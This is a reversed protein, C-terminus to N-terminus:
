TYHKLRAEKRESASNPKKCNNKIAAAFIKYLTNLLSIPRYNECLNTDGKKYILVVSALLAEKPINEEQWWENILQLILVRSDKNLEKFLEINM